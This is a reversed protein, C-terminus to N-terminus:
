MGGMLLRRVEPLGHLAKNFKAYEMPTKGADDVVDPDAGLGLLTPFSLHNNQAAIHLATRGMRDRLEM